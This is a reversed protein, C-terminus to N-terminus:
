LTCDFYRIYSVTDTPTGSRLKAAELNFYVLQAIICIEKSRRQRRKNERNERDRAAGQSRMYIYLEQEKGCEKTSIRECMDGLIRTESGDSTTM